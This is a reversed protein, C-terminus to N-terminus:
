RSSQMLEVLRKVVLPQNFEAEVKRRGNAVMLATREPNDILWKLADALAQPQQPPVMLGCDGALLEPVGGVETAVVPLGYAMAELLCVPIGEVSSPLVVVDVKRERYLDLLNKNPMVGPLEADIHYDQCLKICASRTPGDGALLLSVAIGQQQLLRAAEILAPQNKIQIFNAPCSIRLQTIPTYPEINEPVSVGMNLRVLRGMAQDSTQVRQQYMKISFDAIFRVFAAKEAKMQLLNNDAIDGRHATISFSVGSVESAIMATTASMHMWHAHIHDAKWKSAQESLWLSKPLVCLNRLFVRPTRDASLVLKIIARAKNSHSCVKLATALVERHWLEKVVTSSKLSPHLPYKSKDPSTLPAILLEHGQRQLELLENTIFPESKSFPSQMTTYIIRM